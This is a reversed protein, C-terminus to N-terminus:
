KVEMTKFPSVRCLDPKPIALTVKSLQEIASWARIKLKFPRSDQANRLSSAAPITLKLLCLALQLESDVPSPFGM